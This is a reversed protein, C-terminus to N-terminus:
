LYYHPPRLPMSLSYRSSVEDLWIVTRTALKKHGLNLARSAEESIPDNCTPCLHQPQKRFWRKICMAHFEHPSQSEKPPHLVVVKRDEGTFKVLLSHTMKSFVNQNKQASENIEDLCILCIRADPISELSAYRKLEKVSNAGICICM